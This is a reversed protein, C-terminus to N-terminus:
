SLTGNEGFSLTKMGLDLTFGDKLSKSVDVFGGEITLIQKQSGAVASGKFHVGREGAYISRFNLVPVIRLHLCMMDGAILVHM